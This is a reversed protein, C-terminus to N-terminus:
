NNGNGEVEGGEQVKTNEEEVLSQKGEEVIENMSDDSSVLRERLATARAAEEAELDTDSSLEIARKTKKKPRSPKWILPQVEEHKKM